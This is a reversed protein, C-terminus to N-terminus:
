IIIAMGRGAMGINDIVHYGRVEIHKKSTVEQLMAIDVEHRRMFQELMQQRNDSALGNINPTLSHYTYAM